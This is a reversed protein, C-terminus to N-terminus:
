MRARFSTKFCKQSNPTTNRVTQPGTKLVRNGSTLDPACLLRVCVVCLSLM